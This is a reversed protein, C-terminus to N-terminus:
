LNNLQNAKKDTSLTLFVGVFFFRDAAQSIPLSAYKGTPGPQPSYRYGFISQQGLVNSVSAHIILNPMPLYSWNLSLSNYSKTKSEQEGPKNPDDYTYGDNFSYTMGLQSNLAEMWYKTVFSANHRPAFSPQIKETYNGYQRRSDIFSYTIWFDTNKLSKRDRYFLDFGRAYGDGNTNLVQKGSETFLLLNQYEKHFAEVRFTRSNSAWQYNVIYHRSFSNSLDNQILLNTPKQAQFFDGYAISVQQDKGVEYAASLRPMLHNEIGNSEHRIGGKLVLANTFYYQAEAFTATLPLELDRGWGDLSEEFYQQFYETGVNIQLRHTAYYILKVKLHWLKELRNVLTTDLDIDDKNRSYSFGTNLLWKDSLANEWSVNSYHFQNDLGILWLPNSEDFTPQYVKMQSSQHSYFLKLLSRKSFRHRYLIEGNLSQPAKEWKLNQPILEQYPSLNTYFLSATFANKEFVETHSAQMGVSLLGLDTQNRLPMDLTNLM